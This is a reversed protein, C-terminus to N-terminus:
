DLLGVAVFGEPNKYYEPCRAIDPQSALYAAQIAEGKQPQM